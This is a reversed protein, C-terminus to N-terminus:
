NAQVGAARVAAGWRRHEAAVYRSVEDPTGKMPASGDSLLQGLTAPQGLAREVASNIQRVVEPPTGAPAVIAKWDAAEFGKHTQQVKDAVLRAVSDTGGGPTFPVILRIPQSPYAQAWAPAVATCLAAATAAAFLHRLM